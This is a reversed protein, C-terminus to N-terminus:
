PHRRILPRRPNEPKGSIGPTLHSPWALKEGQDFVLHVSNTIDFGPTEYENRLRELSYGPVGSYHLSKKEELRHIEQMDDMGAQRSTFNELLKKKM